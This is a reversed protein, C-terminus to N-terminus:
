SNKIKTNLYNIRDKLGDDNLLTIKNLKRLYGLIERAEIINITIEEKM